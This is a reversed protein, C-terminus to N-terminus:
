RLGRQNTQGMEMEVRVRLGREFLLHYLRELEAKEMGVAADTDFVELGRFIWERNLPMMRLGDFFVIRIQRVQKELERREARGMGRGDTRSSVKRVREEIERLVHLELGLWGNWLAPCHAVRNGEGLLARAYLSRVSDKTGNGQVYRKTAQEIAFMWNPLSTTHDLKLWPRSINRLRVSLLDLSSTLRAYLALLVSNSPFLTLSDTLSSLLDAPRYPLHSDLHHNILPSKIEHLSALLHIATNPDSRALSSSQVANVHIQLTSLSASLPDSSTLYSLLCLSSSCRVVSEIDARLLAADLGDSLDRRLALQSSASEDHTSARAFLLAKMAAAQDKRKMEVWAWDHPLLFLASSDQRSTSGEHQVTKAFGKISSKWIYAAKQHDELKEEVHAAANYLSAETPNAKILRRATKAAIDPFYRLCFAVFYPRFVLGIVNHALLSELGKHLFNLIAPRKALDGPFTENARSFPSAHTHAIPSVNLPSHGSPVSVELMDTAATCLTSDNRWPLDSNSAFTCFPLDFFALIADLLHEPNLKASTSALINSLDSFFVTHFADDAILDDSDDTTRGPLAYARELNREKAVFSRFRRGSTGHNQRSFITAPLSSEGEGFRPLEDDWSAELEALRESFSRSAESHPIHLSALNQIVAIALEIHGADRIMKLLRLLIYVHSIEMSSDSDDGPDASRLCNIQHLAGLMIEKISDYKADSGADPIMDLYRVWLKSAGPNGDLAKRWKQVQMTSDWLVAGEDLMSELMELRDEADLHSLAQDYIHIRMEALTKRQTASFHQPDIGPAILSAQFEILKIWTQKKAPRIQTDKILSSHHSRVVAGDEDTQDDADNSSVDSDAFRRPKANGEISRYDVDHRPSSSRRRKRNFCGVKVFAENTAFEDQGQSPKVLKYRDQKTKAPVVARQRQDGRNLDNELIIETTSSLDRDIRIQRPLGIISGYGARQYRPISYKHLSGYILNKTDGRVDVIFVDTGSSGRSHSPSRPPPSNKAVTLLESSHRRSRHTRHKYRRHEADDDRHSADRSSSGKDETNTQAKPVKPTFSKFKPINTSM